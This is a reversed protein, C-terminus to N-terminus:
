RESPSRIWFVQKAYTESESMAKALMHTGYVTPTTSLVSGRRALSEHSTRLRHVTPALRKGRHGATASTTPIAGDGAADV